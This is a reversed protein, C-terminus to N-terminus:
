IRKSKISNKKSQNELEKNQDECTYDTSIEALEKIMQVFGREKNRKAREKGGESIWPDLILSDFTHIRKIISDELEIIAKAVTEPDNEIPDKHLLDNM